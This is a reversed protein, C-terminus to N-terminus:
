ALKSYGVQTLTRLCVVLRHTGGVNLDLLYGEEEDFIFEPLEGMEKTKIPMVETYQSM